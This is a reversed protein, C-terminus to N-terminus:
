KKLLTGRAVPPPLGLRSGGGFETALPPTAWFNEFAYLLKQAGGLVDWGRVCLSSPPTWNITKRKGTEM